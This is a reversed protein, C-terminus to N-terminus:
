GGTKYEGPAGSMLIEGIGKKKGWCLRTLFVGGYPVWPEFIEFWNEAQPLGSLVYEQVAYPAGLAGAGFDAESDALRYIELKVAQGSADQGVLVFYRYNTVM